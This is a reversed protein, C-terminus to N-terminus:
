SREEQARPPDHQGPFHEFLFENVFGMQPPFLEASTDKWYQSSATQTGGSATSIATLMFGTSSNSSTSSPWGPVFGPRSRLSLIEALVSAGRTAIVGTGLSQLQEICQTVLDRHASFEPDTDYRHFIDLCLVLAAAVCYAKDIWIIPGDADRVRRAENLITKAAATCIFRTKAYTPDSFSQRLFARHAIIIKHAFCVTLSSRAWHVWAPWAADVPEVVHFYRPMAKTALTRMRMDYALVHQYKTFPTTSQLVAEHQQVVLKAVDFIYNTYSTYTPTTDPLPRMTLHDRKSPKTTTFHRPHINHSGASPLSMWDQVCLQCWLRRGLERQTSRHRQERSSSENISDLAADDQLKDLGLAQAIKLASGLLVSLEASRGLPHASMTLTTIAQVSYLSHAATWQGHHLSTIAARYWEASLKEAELNSFGWEHLRAESSCTLAGAMISFLLALWQLDLGRVILTSKDDQEAIVSELEARLTPGHYCCHYWLLYIEHYDVLQWIHELSPLLMQFLSEHSTSTALAGSDLGSDELSFLCSNEERCAEAPRMRLRVPEYPTFVYQLPPPKSEVSKWLEHADAIEENDTVM